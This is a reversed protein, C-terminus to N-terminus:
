IGRIMAGEGTALPPACPSLRPIFSTGPADGGRSLGVWANALSDIRRGPSNENEVGV